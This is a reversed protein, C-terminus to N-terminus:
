WKLNKHEHKDFWEWFEEFIDYNRLNFRKWYEESIDYNM